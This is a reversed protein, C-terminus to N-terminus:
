PFMIVVQIKVYMYHTKGEAEKLVVLAHKVKSPQIWNIRFSSLSLPMLSLEQPVFSTPRQSNKNLKTLSM